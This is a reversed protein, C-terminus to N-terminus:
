AWAALGFPRRLLRRGWWGVRDRECGRGGVIDRGFRGGNIGNEYWGALSSVCFYSEARAVGSTSWLMHARARQSLHPSRPPASIPMLDPLSLKTVPLASYLHLPPALTSSNLSSLAPSSSRFLHYRCLPRSPHLTVLMRESLLALQQSILCAVKQETM